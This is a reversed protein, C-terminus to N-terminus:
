TEDEGRNNEEDQEIEKNFVYSGMVGGSLAGFGGCSPPIPAVMSAMSGRMKAGM